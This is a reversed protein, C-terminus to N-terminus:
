KSLYKPIMGYHLAWSSELSSVNKKGLLAHSLVAQQEPNCNYCQFFVPQLGFLYINM